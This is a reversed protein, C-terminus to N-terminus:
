GRLWLISGLIYIERRLISRCMFTHTAFLILKGRENAAPEPSGSKQHWPLSLSATGIGAVCSGRSPSAGALRLVVGNGIHSNVRHATPTKLRYYLLM